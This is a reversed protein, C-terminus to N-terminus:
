PVTVISETYPTHIGKLCGGGVNHSSQYCTRYANYLYHQLNRHSLYLLITYGEQGRSSM